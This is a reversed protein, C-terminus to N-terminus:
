ARKDRNSFLCQVHVSKQKVNEIGDCPIALNYNGLTADGTIERVICDKITKPFKIPQKISDLEVELIWMSPELEVGNFYFGDIEYKLKGRKVVYRVKDLYRDAKAFNNKFALHTVPLEIEENVGHALTRKITHVYDIEGKTRDDSRIVVSRRYRGKPAYAQTIHLIDANEVVDPLGKLLWRREIELNNTKKTM